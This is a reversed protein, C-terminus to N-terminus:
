GDGVGRGPRPLHLPRAPHAAHRPPDQGHRALRVPTLRDTVVSVCSWAHAPCWTTTGAIVGVASTALRAVSSGETIVYSSGFLLIEGGRLPGRLAPRKM